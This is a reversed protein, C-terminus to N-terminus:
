SDNKNFFRIAPNSEEMEVREVFIGADFGGKAHRKEIRKNEIAQMFVGSAKSLAHIVELVDALEETLEDFNKALHVEKAEELLKEKLMQVFEDDVLIRTQLRTGQSEMIKPLQDRILKELQISKIAM